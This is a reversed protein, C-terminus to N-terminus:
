RGVEVGGRSMGRPGMVWDPELGSMAGGGCQGAVCRVLANGARALEPGSMVGGGRRGQSVSRLHTVRGLNLANM